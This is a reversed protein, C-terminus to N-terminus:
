KLIEEEIKKPFAFNIKYYEIAEFLKRVEETLKNEKELKQKFESLNDKAKMLEKYEVLGNSYVKIYLQLIQNKSFSFSKNIEEESIELKKCIDLLIKQEKYLEKLLVNDDPAFCGVSAKSILINKSTILALEKLGQITDKAENTIRKLEIGDKGLKLTDISKFLNDKFYVLTIFIFIAIFPWVNKDSMSLFIVMFIGFGYYLIIPVYYLLLNLVKKFWGFIQKIVKM